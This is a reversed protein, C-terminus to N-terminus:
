EDRLSRIYDESNLDLNLAGTMARLEEYSFDEVAEIAQIGDADPHISVPIGDSRYTIVGRIRVDGFLANKVQGKMQDPFHCDIKHGDKDYITFELRGHGSVRELRGEVNGIAGYQGEIWEDIQAITEANVEISGSQDNVRLTFADPLAKVIKKLRRLAEDSFGRPRERQRGQISAVGERITKSIDVDLQRKGVQYPQIQLVASGYELGSIKWKMSKRGGSLTKDVETAIESLGSVVTKFTDLSVDEPGDVKFRLFNNQEM